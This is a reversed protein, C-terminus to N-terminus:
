LILYQTGFPMKEVVSLLSQLYEVEKEFRKKETEIQKLYGTIKLESDLYFHHRKLLTRLTKRNYYNGVGERVLLKAVDNVNKISWHGVYKRLFSISDKSPPVLVPEYINSLSEM